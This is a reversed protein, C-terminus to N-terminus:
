NVMLIIIHTYICIHITNYLRKLSEFAQLGKQSLFAM